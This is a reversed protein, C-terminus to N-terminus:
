QNPRAVNKGQPNPLQDRLQILPNVKLSNADNSWYENGKSILKNVDEATAKQPDLQRLENLIRMMTVKPQTGEQFIVKNNNENIHDIIYQFDNICKKFLDVQGVNEQNLVPSSTAGKTPIIPLPRGGRVDNQQAEKNALKKALIDSIYHAVQERLIIKKKIQETMPVTKKLVDIRAVMKAQTDILETLGAKPSIIVALITKAAEKTTLAEANNEDAVFAKKVIDAFAKPASEKPLQSLAGVGKKMAEIRIPNRTQPESLLKQLEKFEIVAPSDVVPQAVVLEVPLETRAVPLPAPISPEDFEIGISNEAGAGADAPKQISSKLTVKERTRKHTEERLANILGIFTEPEKAPVSEASSRHKGHLVAAIKNKINPKNKEKKDNEAIPEKTPAKIFLELENYKKVMQAINAKVTLAAAKVEQNESNTASDVRAIHGTILRNLREVSKLSKPDKNKAEYVKIAYQKLLKELVIEPSDGEEKRVFFEIDAEMQERAQAVKDDAAAGAQASPPLPPLAKPFRKAM